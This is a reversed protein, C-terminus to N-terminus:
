KNKILIRYQNFYWRAFYNFSILFDPTIKKIFEKWTTKRMFSLGSQFVSINKNQAWKAIIPFIANSPGQLEIQEFTYSHLIKELAMLKFIQYLYDTKNPPREVLSTAWWYSFGDDLRLFDILTQQQLSTRGLRSVWALYDERLTLCTEDVIQPLSFLLETSMKIEDWYIVITKPSIERAPRKQEDGFLVIVKTLTRM